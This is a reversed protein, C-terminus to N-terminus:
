DGALARLFFFLNAPREALRRMFYPYWSQGYPVYIRLRYGEEALRLQEDRRIGYLFQIEWTSPDIAKGVSFECMPNYVLDDHSGVALRGKGEKEAALLTQCLDIMEQQIKGREQWAIEPPEDYAGKVLRLDAIGEDILAQMDARTRFLYAQLVMGVNDFEARLRRYIDLTIDVLDSEEIDIRVFRNQRQAEAVIQRVNEFCFEPDIHLGIASLKLSVGSRLDEARIDKLLALYENVNATAAERETCHEGLYDVTALLGIANLQRIAELAEPRTEGAVFRRAVRKAPGFGTVFNRAKSSRSLALLSNRLM